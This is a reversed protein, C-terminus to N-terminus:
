IHRLIIDMKTIIIQHTIKDKNKLINNKIQVQELDDYKNKMEEGKMISEYKM